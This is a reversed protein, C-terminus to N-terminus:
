QLLISTRSIRTTSSCGQNKCYECGTSSPLLWVCVCVCMFDGPLVYVFCNSCTVVCIVIWAPPSCSYLFCSCTRWVNKLTGQLAGSLGSLCGWCIAPWGVDYKKELHAQFWFVKVDCNGKGFWRPLFVLFVKVDSKGKGFWRPLFKSWVEGFASCTNNALTNPTTIKLGVRLFVCVVKLRFLHSYLIVADDKELNVGGLFSVYGKFFSPQCLLNGKFHERKLPCPWSMTMKPSLISVLCSKSLCSKGDQCTFIHIQLIMGILLNYPNNWGLSDLKYPWKYPTIAGNVLVPLIMWYSGVPLLHKKVM